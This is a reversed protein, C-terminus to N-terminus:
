LKHGLLTDNLVLWNLIFKKVPLLGTKQQLQVPYLRKEAV